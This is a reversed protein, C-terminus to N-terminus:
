APSIPTIPDPGRFPDWLLSEILTSDVILTSGPDSPSSNSNGAFGRKRHREKQKQISLYVFDSETGKHSGQRPGAICRSLNGPM